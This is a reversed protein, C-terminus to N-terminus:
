LYTNERSKIGAAFLACQGGRVNPHKKFAQTLQEATRNHLFCTGVLSRYHVGTFIITVFGGPNQKHLADVYNLLPRMFARLPSEVIVLKMDPAYMQM